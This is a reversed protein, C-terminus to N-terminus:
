FVSFFHSRQQNRLAAMSAAQAFIRRLRHPLLLLLPPPPLLLLLAYKHDHNPV